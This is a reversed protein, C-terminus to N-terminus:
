MKGSRSAARDCWRDMAFMTGTRGYGSQVEDVMLLIGHQRTLERVRRLYSGPCPVYGGQARRRVALGMAVLASSVRLRVEGLVPEILIAATDAPCTQQKLHLQLAQPGPM